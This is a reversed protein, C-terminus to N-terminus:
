IGFFDWQWKIEDATIPVSGDDKPFFVQDPPLKTLRQQCYLAFAMSYNAKVCLAIVTKATGDVLMKKATAEDIKARLAFARFVIEHEGLMIADQMQEETLQEPPITPLKDQVEVRQHMKRLVDHTTAKDLNAERRLFVYLSKEIVFSLDRKLQRKLSSRDAIAQALEPNEQLIVLADPSIKAKDNALLAQGALMNGTGIVAEMISSSLRPRSAITQTHWGQPYQTVLALLDEDSLSLSYRIIPEAVEREADDALKRAIAHPTRAVDKLASALAIRVPTMSDETLQKIADLLLQSTKEDRTNLKHLLSVLRGALLIRVDTDQDQVMSALVSPPTQKHLILQQKQASPLAALKEPSLPIPDTHEFLFPLAKSLFSM